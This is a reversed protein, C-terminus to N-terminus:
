SSEVWRGNEDKVEVKLHRPDMAQRIAARIVADEGSRRATELKLWTKFTDTEVLRRFANRRNQEFSREERSEGRAGSPPHILRVGSSTKNQNQGGKGGARFTQM